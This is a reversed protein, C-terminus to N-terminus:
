SYHVWLAIVTYIILAVVLPLFCIGWSFTVLGFIKCVVFILTIIELIGM